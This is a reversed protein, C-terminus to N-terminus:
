RSESNGQSATSLHRGLKFHESIEEAELAHAYIALEDLEGVFVRRLEDVYFRGLLVRWGAPTVQADRVEDIQKGNVYLKLSSEDKVGVVHQWERPLYSTKSFCSKGEKSNTSDHHFFRIVEPRRFRDPRAGSMNPPAPGGLELLAGHRIHAPFNSGPDWNILSVLDGLQVHSPKAWVEITYSTRLEDGFKDDTLLYFSGDVGLEASRNGHYDRWRPNGHVRCHWHDRMENRVLGDKDSEFRWYALPASEKVAAVYQDNIMLRDASMAINAVFHKPNAVGRAIELRGDDSTRLDLSSGEAIVLQELEDPHDVSWLLDLTAEGAFAHIVIQDKGAVVGVSASGRVSVRGMTSEFAFSDDDTGDSQSVIRASLKGYELVPTGEGTVGMALPGELTFLGTDGNPRTSVLEAIGEVLNLSQGPRLQSGGRLEATSRTSDWHCNAVNVLTAAYSTSRRAGDDGSAISEHVPKAVNGRDGQTMYVTMAAVAVGVVFCAAMGLLSNKPTFPGWSRSLGDFQEPAQADILIPAPVACSGESIGSGSIAAVPGGSDRPSVPDCGAWWHLASTDLMYEVYLRRAEESTTILEELRAAQSADMDLQARAAILRQLEDLLSENNANNEM